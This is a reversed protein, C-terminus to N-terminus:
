PQAPGGTEQTRSGRGSATAEGRRISTGSEEPAGRSGESETRGAKGLGQGTRRSRQPTAGSKDNLDAANRRAEEARLRQEEAERRLDEGQTVLSQQTSGAAQEAQKEREEAQKTKQQASREADRAREEMMEKRKERNQPDQLESREVASALAPDLKEMVQKNLRDLERAVQDLKDTFSKDELEKNQQLTERLRDVRPKLGDRDDNILDKVEQQKQQAQAIDEREKPTLQEGQKLRQEADRIQQTAQKQKDNARALQQQLKTQEQNLELKLANPGVIRIAIQESTGPQKNRTVDDHDDAFAQIVLTDGDKLPSGDPHTFEKLPLPRKIELHTPAVRMGPLAAIGPGVLLGPMERATKPGFLELVKPSQDRSTQYRLFVSRLGFVPDNAVVELTLVATPLATLNDKSQSPRELNVVPAPDPKLHVDFYQRGALGIDNEFSLRYRGEAGPRFTVNLHKRDATLEVPVALAAGAPALALTGVVMKVGEPQYYELRASKLPQDTEGRVIFSSGADAELYAQGGSSGEGPLTSGPKRKEATTKGTYAPPLIDVELSGPVLFPPTLVKVLYTASEADGAQIRFRFDRQVNKVPFAFSGQQADEVSINATQREWDKSKNAEFHTLVTVEQPLVGGLTGFIDLNDGQGIEIIQRFGLALRTWSHNGFPDLFRAAGTTALGAGLWFLGLTLAGGSGRDIRRPPSQRRTHDQLFRM